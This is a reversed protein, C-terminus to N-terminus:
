RIPFGVLFLSSSYKHIMVMRLLIHHHQFFFQFLQKVTSAWVPVVTFFVMTFAHVKYFAM